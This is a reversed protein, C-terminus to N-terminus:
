EAVLSSRDRTGGDRMGGLEQLIWWDSPFQDPWFNALDWGAIANIWSSGKRLSRVSGDAFCFQVLGPHKSGFIPPYIPDQGDAALGSLTPVVGACMWSRLYARQGNLRGGDFEGLLLTNSTGDAINELSTTSRNTFIGEYQSWYQSTGKGALGASGAYNSRGLNTPDSPPLVVSDGHVNDDANPVLPANVNYVHFGEVTGLAATDDDVNDSPCEFVKIRTQALKWNTPNTYWAPALHREDLDIQLQGFITNQEFYPLLYVLLGVHQMGDTNPAFEQENPIPGLYGPPLRGKASQYNHCALGLQKLNNACSTRSAAERIRQVAPLLLAILVGIIAIVVLLEILTFARRTRNMADGDLNFSAAANSESAM